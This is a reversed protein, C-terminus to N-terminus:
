GGTYRDEADAKTATDFEANTFTSSISLPVSFSTDAILDKSLMLEIGDITAEGINRAEDGLGSALSPVAIMDNIKTNFYAFEYNVSSMSGRSGFEFGLSKEEEFNSTAASYGPLAHGQHVGAFALHEGLDYTGGLGALLDYVPGKPGKYQYEVSTYRIGPSLTLRDLLIEDTLYTEWARSIRDKATGKSSSTSSDYSLSASSDGANSVNYIDETYDKYTYHDKTYRGGLEFTHNEWQKSISAQIGTNKYNRDNHKYKVQGQGSYSSTDNMDGLGRLMNTHNTSAFAGKGISKWEISNTSNNEVGVKGIKYWDRDFENHFVTAKFTTDEDIEKLYRLYYRTQESDM